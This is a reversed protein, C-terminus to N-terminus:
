FHKMKLLPYKKFVNPFNDEIIIHINLSIVLFFSLFLRCNGLIGFIEKAFKTSQKKHRFWGRWRLDEGEVSSWWWLCWWGSIGVWIENSKWSFILVCGCGTSDCGLTLVVTETLGERTTKRRIYKNKRMKQNVVHSYTACRQRWPWACYGLRFGGILQCPLPLADGLAAGDCECGVAGPM